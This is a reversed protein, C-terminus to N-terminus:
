KHQRGKEARLGSCQWKLIVDLIGNRLLVLGVNALHAALLDCESGSICMHFNLVTENIEHFPNVTM